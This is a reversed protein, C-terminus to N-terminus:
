NAIYCLITGFLQVIHTQTSIKEQIKRNVAYFIYTLIRILMIFSFAILTSFFDNSIQFKYKLLENDNHLSLIM